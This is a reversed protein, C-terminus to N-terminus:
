FVFLTNQVFEGQTSGDMVFATLVAFYTFDSAVGAVPVDQRVTREVYEVPQFLAAKDSRLTAAGVARGTGTNGGYARLEILASFSFGHFLDGDGKDYLSHAVPAGKCVVFGRWM